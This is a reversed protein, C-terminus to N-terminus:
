FPALCNRGQMGNDPVARSFFVQWYILDCFRHSGFSELALEMARKVVV